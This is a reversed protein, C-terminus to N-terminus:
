LRIHIICLMKEPIYLVIVQRAYYRFAKKPFINNELIYVKVVGATIALEKIKDYSPFLVTHWNALM